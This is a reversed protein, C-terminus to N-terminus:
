PNTPNISPGFSQIQLTSLTELSTFTYPGSGDMPPANEINEELATVFSVVPDGGNNDSIFPVTLTWSDAKVNNSPQYIRLVFRFPTPAAGPNPNTAVGGSGVQTRAMRIVASGSISALYGTPQMQTIDSNTGKVRASQLAQQFQISEQLPQGGSPDGVGPLRFAFNQTHSNHDSNKAGRGANCSTNRLLIGMLQGNEYGWARMGEHYIAGLPNGTKDTSDIVTLYDHTSRFVVGPWYATFNEDNWHNATGYKMAPVSAPANALSWSTVVSTGIGDTWLSGTADKGPANGTVCVRVLPEQLNLVYEVAVHSETSGTFPTNSMKGCFRWRYPGSEIMKGSGITYSPNAALKFGDASLSVENGMQYPNGNNGEDYVRINNCPGATLEKNTTLDFISTLAWGGTQSKGVAIEVLGNSMYFAADDEPKQAPSFVTQNPAKTSFYIVTYGTSNLGPVQILVGGNKLRQIPFLANTNGAVYYSNMEDLKENAPIEVLSSITRATGAPNFVAYAIENAAPGAQVSMALLRMAHQLAEEAQSEALTIMPLQEQWYISNPSTGTIFDHHSSPVLTNWAVDIMKDVSDVTASSIWSYARLLTTLTEAALLRNSARQQSIKIQVLNAFHGTWYSSPDFGGDDAKWGKRSPITFGDSQSKSIMYNVFDEFTGLVAYIGTSNYYDSNYDAIAQVLGEKPVSFDGGTPTMMINGPQHITLYTPKGPTVPLPYQNAAVFSDFYSENAECQTWPFGYAPNQGGPTEGQTMPQTFSYQIMFNALVTSDDASKWYFTVGDQALAQSLAICQTDTPQLLGSQQWGPIRAFSVGCFGMAKLVVPLQPDTGFDDPVWCVDTLLEALGMQNIFARGVLYNRIFVEGNTVLSDPSVIGGGILSFSGKLNRLAPLWEPNDRLYRQLWATEALNYQYAQLNNAAGPVDRSIALTLEQVKDLIYRVSHYGGGDSPSGMNYYQEFTVHWHWDMHSTSVVFLVGKAGGPITQFM